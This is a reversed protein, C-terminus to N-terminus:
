GVYRAIQGIGGLVSGIGSLTGGLTGGGGVQGANYNLRSQLNNADVTQANLQPFFGMTSGVNTQVPTAMTAQRGTVFQTPNATTAAQMNLFNSAAQQRQQRLAQARDGVYLAEESIPANGFSIGRAGQGRRVQQEFQRRMAPDLSAGAQLESLIDSGLQNRIAAATPDYAQEAQRLLPGLQQINYIEGARSQRNAESESARLLPGYTSEFNLGVEAQAPALRRMAELAALQDQFQMTRIEPSRAILTGITDAFNEAATPVVPASAGGGGSLANSGIAGAAAGILAPIFWAM